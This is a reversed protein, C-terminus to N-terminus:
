KRDTTKYDHNRRCCFLRDYFISLLHPSRIKILNCWTESIFPSDGHMYNVNNNAFFFPILECLPHRYLTLDAEFERFSRVLNNIGNDVSSELISITLCEKGQWQIKLDRNFLTDPGNARPGNARCTPGNFLFWVETHPVTSRHVTIFDRWWICIAYVSDVICNQTKWVLRQYKTCSINPWQSRHVTFCTHKRLSSTSSASQLRTCKDHGLSM